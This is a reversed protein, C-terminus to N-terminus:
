TEVKGHYVAEVRNGFPDYLFAGYYSEHYNVRLGPAGNCKGGYDIGAQYFSEVVSRSEAKFCWHRADDTNASSSEYVALCSHNEEGATCRVGYGLSTETEYVKECGLSGMIADYFEVCDPLTKVSISVHDLLQV